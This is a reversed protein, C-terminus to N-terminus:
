DRADPTSGVDHEARESAKLSGWSKTLGDTEIVDM